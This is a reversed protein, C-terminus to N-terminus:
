EAKKKKQNTSPTIEKEAKEKIRRFFDSEEIANAMADVIGKLANEIDGSDIIADELMKSATAKDVDACIMLYGRVSSLGKANLIDIGEDQLDIIQEFELPKATYKKGNLEFTKM